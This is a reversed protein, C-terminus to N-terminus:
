TTNVPDTAVPYIISCAHASLAIGPMTSSPPLDAPITKGSASMSLTTSLALCAM